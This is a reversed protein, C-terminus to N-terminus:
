ASLRMTSRIPRWGHPRRVRFTREDSNVATRQNRARHGTRPHVRPLRTRNGAAVTLPRDRTCPPKGADMIPEPGRHPLRDRLWISSRSGQPRRNSPAHSQTARHACSSSPYWQGDSVLRARRDVSGDAVHERTPPSPRNRITSAGNTSTEAPGALGRVAGGRGPVGYKSATLIPVKRPRISSKATTASRAGRSEATHEAQVHHLRRGRHVAEFRVPCSSRGDCRPPHLRRRLATSTRTREDSRALRHPDRNARAAWELDNNWCPRGFFADLPKQMLLAAPDVVLDGGRLGDGIPRRNESEVLGANNPDASSRQVDLASDPTARYRSGGLRAPQGHRPGRRSVSVRDFPPIAPLRPAM